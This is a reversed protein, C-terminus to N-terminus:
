VVLANIQCYVIYEGCVCWGCSTLICYALPRELHARSSKSDASCPDPLDLVVIAFTQTLTTSHVPSLKVISSARAAYVGVPGVLLHFLVKGIIRTLAHEDDIVVHNHTEIVHCRRVSWLVYLTFVFM